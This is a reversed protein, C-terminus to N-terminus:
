LNHDPLNSRISILKKLYNQMKKKNKVFSIKDFSLYAILLFYILSDTNPMNISEKIEFFRNIPMKNVTILKTASFLPYIQQSFDSAKTM